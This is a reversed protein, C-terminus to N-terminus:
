FQEKRYYHYGYSRMDNQEAKSLEIHGEMQSVYSNEQEGSIAATGPTM